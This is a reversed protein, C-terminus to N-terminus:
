SIKSTAPRDPPTDLEFVDGAGIAGGSDEVLGDFEVMVLARQSLEGDGIESVFLGGNQNGVLHASCRGGQDPAVGLAHDDLVANGVTDVEEMHVGQGRRHRHLHVTIQLEGEHGAAQVAQEAVTDRVSVFAGLGSVQETIEDVGRSLDLDALVVDLDSELFAGM